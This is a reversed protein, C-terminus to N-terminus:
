KLINKFKFIIINKYKNKTKKIKPAIMVLIVQSEVIIVIKEMQNTVNLVKIAMNEVTIANIIETNETNQLVVEM